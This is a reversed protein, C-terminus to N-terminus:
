QSNVSKLIELPIKPYDYKNLNVSPPNTVVVWGSATKNLVIRLTDSNFIDPGKYTLTTGYWEGTKYLQGTQIDYASINPYAVTLATKIVPLETKLLTNLHSDSFAPDFTVTQPGSSLDVTKYQNQYGSHAKFYLSYVGKHVKTTSSAYPIVTDPPIQEESGVPTDKTVKYLLVQDNNRADITVSTYSTLYDFIGFGTAVLVLFLILIIIKRNM